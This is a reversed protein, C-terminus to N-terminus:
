GPKAGEGPRGCCGSRSPRPAGRGYSGLVACVMVRSVGFTSALKAANFLLTTGAATASSSVASPPEVPPNNARQKDRHVCSEIGKTM